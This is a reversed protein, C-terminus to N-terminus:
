SPGYAYPDNAYTLGAERNLRRLVEEVRRAFSEGDEGPLQTVNLTVTQTINPAPRERGGYGPGGTDPPRRNPEPPPPMPSPVPRSLDAATMAQSANFRALELNLIRFGQPVNVLAGTAENISDAFADLGRDLSLLHQLFEDVSQFGALDVSTLDGAMAQTILDRIRTELVDRGIGSTLDINAIDGFLEKSQEALIDFQSQLLQGPDTIDFIENFAELLSRQGAFTEGFKVVSRNAAIIADEFQQITKPDGTLTIGLDAAIPNLIAGNKLLMEIGQAVGGIGTAMLRQIENVISIAETRDGFNTPNEMSRRLRELADNNRNLLEARRRDAESEGFLGTAIQFAGAAITLTGSIQALTGLMQSSEGGGGGGGSFNFWFPSSSSADPKLQDALERGFDLRAVGTLFKDIGSIAESFSDGLVGATKALDGFGSVVENTARINENFAETAVRAARVAEQRADDSVDFDINLKATLEIAKTIQDTSGSAFLRQIQEVLGKNLAEAADRGKDRFSAEDILGAAAAVRAQAMALDYERQIQDAITGADVGMGLPAAVVQPAVEVKLTPLAEWMTQIRGMREGFDAEMRALAAQLREVEEVAGEPVVGGSTRVATIAQGIEAIRSRLREAVSVGERLADPLDSVDFLGFPQLIATDRIASQAAAMARTMEEGAQRARNEVGAFASELTNVVSLLHQVREPPVVFENEIASSLERRADALMQRARGEMAASVVGSSIVGALTSAQAQAASRAAEAQIAYRQRLAASELREMERLQRDLERARAAGATREADVARDMYVNMGDVMIVRRERELREALVLQERQIGSIDVQLQGGSATVEQAEALQRLRTIMREAEERAERSDKTLRNWGAALAAMGALVGVMVGTGLAFTGVVDVLQGVVPHAGAAQRAVTVMANNLRGLGVASKRSAGDIEQLSGAIKAFTEHGAQGQFVPIGAAENTRGSDLVELITRNYAEANIRAAEEAEKPGLMGRFVAERVAADDVQLATEAIRMQELMSQRAIEVSRQATAQEEAIRSRRLEAERQATYEALELRERQARIDETEGTPGKAAAALASEAATRASMARAVDDTATSLELSTQAAERNAAALAESAAQEERIRDAWQAWNLPESRTPSAKEAAAALGDMAQAAHGIFLPLGEIQDLTDMISSQFVRSGATLEDFSGAGVGDLIDNARVVASEAADVITSSLIPGALDGLQSAGATISDTLSGALAAGAEAGAAEADPVISSTALASMQELAPGAMATADTVARSMADTIRSQSQALGSAVQDAIRRGQEVADPPILSLASQQSQIQQPIASIISQMRSIDRELGTLELGARLLLEGIVAM